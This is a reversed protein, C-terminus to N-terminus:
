PPLDTRRKSERAPWFPLHNRTQSRFLTCISAFTTCLLLWLISALLLLGIPGLVIVVPLHHSAWRFFRVDWTHWTGGQVSHFFEDMLGNEGPMLIRVRPQQRLPDTSLYRKWVFTVMHPGSSGMITLYPTGFNRDYSPLSEVVLKFYPHGPSTAMVHNSFGASTSVGPM